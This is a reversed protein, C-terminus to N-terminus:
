KKILRKTISGTESTITVFYMGSTLTSLSSIELTNGNFSREQNYIIQGLVNNIKVSVNQGRLLTSTIQIQDGDLPNPYMTIDDIFADETSLSSQEFIIKFRDSAISAETDENVTFEIFNEGEELEHIEGTFTDELYAIVDTLGAQEVRLTYAETRYANNFLQIEEDLAPLARREVSYTGEGNSIAMNEDINFFKAADTLTIDNSFNESFLIVFNDQLKNGANFDETRFLQGIIHANNIIPDDETFFIATDEGVIKDNENFTIATSNDGVTTATTVFASQWPQFFNNADSGAGNTSGTGTLIVTVYAGRTGLTADWVYYQNTNINTANAVIDNMDVTAQYPNGVLNFNGTTHNLDSGTISSTGTVITGTARIRTDTPVASNSTVDITRDGRVFLLYADGATLTNMDTNDIPTLAPTSATNDYTFLSPNGSPTTDFGNAGSTSGTIHTGFNAASSGNEQWNERITTTTTVPSTVFRFARRAPVFREITVNGSVVGNTVPAIMASQTASSLLTLNDNTTIQGETLTLLENVSVGTDITITASNDLTLQAVEFANGTISQNTGDKKFAILEAEDGDLTGSNAINGSLQVRNSAFDFTAGADVTINNIVTDATLAISGSRVIINDISTSVGSPDRPTWAGADYIYDTPGLTFRLNDIAIDSLFGGGTIGVIRLQIIEDAMTSLDVTRTLWDADNSTQQQGSLLAGPVQTWTGGQNTSIEIDLTGLDAGFMHYDFEFVANRVGTLDICPSILRATANFGIANPDSVANPDSAEIYLYQGGDPGDDPGTAGSATGNTDLTWNNNGNPNTGDTTDQMWLGLGAAELSTTYPFTDVVESTCTFTQNIISIQFNDFTFGEFHTDYGDVLNTGDTDFRFRFIVNNNGIITENNFQDLLIEELVWKDVDDTASATNTTNPDLVLDGDYILDGNNRQHFEIASSTNTGKQLHFNGQEGSPVKTYKGCLATFSSGGDISAEIQALDFNREIDWKANFHIVASNATSLDVATNLTVFSLVNNGYPPSPTSTIANTSGNYGDTTGTWTNSTGSTSWNGIGDGNVLVSPNFYKTYTVQYITYTDNSLSVQYEIPDDMSIAPDLTLTASTARQELIDMGNLAGVTPQTVGTINSSIPTITLTLDSATQGLYEVEFDLQPSTSTINTTTFDHLRAYKGAYLSTLLNMRVARQAVRVIDTAAPWFEDGNEPSFTIINEGSGTATYSQNTGPNGFNDGDADIVTNYTVDPGGLMFDNTDGNANTLTNPASGHIYRNFRTADHMLKQYEDERDSPAANPNGNYSSTVISNIGSHHNIAYKFERSRVFDALIQSEPESAPFPGRYTDSGQSPSSGSNDFGWYYSSNRNLDVGRLANGTNTNGTDNVGPRLNKRQLGGGNPTIAQNWRVGDPNVIPIFYMEQNDVLNKVAPDLDYNELVWWMYYIINMMSNVERAHTMGTILSEPENSEDTDPNDSIRVYWITEPDFNTGTTNGHTQQGIPSADQRTSILHPYMTRMRDLEAIMEDVTLCGGFADGLRFNQAVWDIEDCEERQIFSEITADGTSLSSRYEREALSREKMQRLEVDAQERTAEYREVFFTTLDDQVIVYPLGLQDITQVESYNLDLRLDNGEFKAGCHLDLGADQISQLQEISPATVLIRKATGITGNNADSQAFLGTISCLSLACAFVTRKLTTKKM